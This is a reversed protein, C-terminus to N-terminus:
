NPVAAAGPTAPALPPVPATEVNGNSPASAPAVAGPRPKPLPAQKPLAAVARKAPKQKAATPPPARQPFREPPPPLVGTRNSESYSPQEPALDAREVPTARIVPPPAADDVSASAGPIGAPPRVGYLPEEQYIAPPGRRYVVPPEPSIHGPPPVREYPGLTVGSPLERSAVAMPRVSVIRGSRADILVRVERDAADVARLAYHAGRRAPQGLPELGTSRVITLIEYPPLSGGAHNQALRQPEAAAPAATAFV